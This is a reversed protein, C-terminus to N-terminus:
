DSVKKGIYILYKIDFKKTYYYLYENCWKFLKAYVYSNRADVDDMHNKVKFETYGKWVKDTLDLLNQQKFGINDLDSQLDHFTRNNSLHISWLLSIACTMCYSVPDNYKKYAFGDCFSLIGDKVLIKNAGNIFDHFSPMNNVAEISYVHTASNPEIYKPLETGSGYIVDIKDDLGHQEILLRARKVHELTIDVATIKKPHYNNYLYILENGMGCGVCVISSDSTIEMNSFLKEYLNEAAQKYSTTDDKWVGFTLEWSDM